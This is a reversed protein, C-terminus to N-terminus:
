ASVSFSADTTTPRRTMEAMAEQVEVVCRVADVVSAFEVVSATAPRGVADATRLLPPVILERAAAPEALTGTEDRGM